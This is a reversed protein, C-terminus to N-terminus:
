VKGTIRLKLVRLLYKILTLPKLKSEGTGRPMFEIPVEVISINEKKLFYLVESVIFPDRAKLGPLIKELASRSFLRYGSTPDKLNVGLAMALYVRAFNSILQRLLTRQEDRGGPVYRSGIAVDFGPAKLAERLAFIYKPAHSMDGDMEVVYNAGMELAKKFGDIGAWGRGRRETRNLLHVRENTKAIGEVIKGTGDPSNDDVILVHLNLPLACLESILATINGAENYTPVMAVIDM